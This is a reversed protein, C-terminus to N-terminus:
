EGDTGRIEQKLMIELFRKNNGVGRRQWQAGSLLKGAICLV